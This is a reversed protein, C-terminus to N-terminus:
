AMNEDKSKVENCIPALFTDTFITQCELIDPFNGIEFVTYIGIFSPHHGFQSYLENFVLIDLESYGEWWNEDGGSQLPFALGLHIGLDLSDAISLIIEVTNIPNVTTCNQIQSPYFSTFTGYPCEESPPGRQRSNSPSTSSSHLHPMM